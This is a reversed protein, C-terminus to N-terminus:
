KKKNFINKIRAKPKTNNKIDYYMKELAQLDPKKTSTEPISEVFYIKSPVMYEPVGQLCHEFIIEETKKNEPLDKVVVFAIATNVVSESPVTIVECKDIGPIEAICRKTREPIIKTPNGKSDLTLVVRRIRGDLFIEGKENIHLLDETNYWTVGNEDKVLNHNTAAENGYYGDMRAASYLYGVGTENAKLPVGTEVDLIKIMNGVCPIGVSGITPNDYYGYSFSGLLESAGYGQEVHATGGNKHIYDDAKIKIDGQLADGGTVIIKWKSCDIPKDQEIATKIYPPITLWHNFKYLENRKAIDKPNFLPDLALTVGLSLPEHIMNLLCYYIWLPFTTLMIDDEAFRGIETMGMIQIMADIREWSAACAKCTGTSGSTYAITAMKNPVFECAEVVRSSNRGIKLLQEFNMLERGDFEKKNIGKLKEILEFKLKDGNFGMPIADTLSTTIIREVGCERLMDRTKKNCFLDNAIYYKSEIHSIERRIENANSAGNIMHMIAGIKDLAYLSVIAYPTSLLSMAVVDNYGIGIEQFGKAAIDVLSLLQRYTIANGFYLIAVSDPKKEAISKFRNYLTEYELIKEIEGPKDIKLVKERLNILEEKTLKM